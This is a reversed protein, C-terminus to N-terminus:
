FRILHAAVTALIRTITMYLNPLSAPSRQPINIPEKIEERAKRRQPLYQM